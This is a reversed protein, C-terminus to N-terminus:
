CSPIRVQRHYSILRQSCISHTAVRLATAVCNASLQIVTLAGGMGGVGRQTLTKDSHPSGLRSILLAGGMGGGRYLYVSFYPIKSIKLKKSKNINKQINYPTGSTRSTDLFRGPSRPKTTISYSGRALWPSGM